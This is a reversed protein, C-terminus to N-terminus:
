KQEEVIEKVLNVYKIANVASSYYKEGCLKANGELLSLMEKNDALERIKEAAKEYDTRSVCIGFKESNVKRYFDSKKECMCLSTRGCAMLLTCKSPFSTYIVGKSLPVFEIDCASYVDNIISSDQWPFFRINTLKNDLAEKKFDDEFGGTGIIHIEINIDNKLLKAVEIVAHYNFTYGINGAYQIIFKSRDIEYKKIFQNEKEKVEKVASSDYWNPIIVLKEEEIHKRLFTQKMDESIVVIRSSTKYVYNQLVSLVFFVAKNNIAGFLHPGDPFVDFNNYVVPKKLYKHLLFSSFFATHTSQLIVADIEDIHKKWEKSANIQYLMGDKYRDFFKRKEVKGRPIISYTFGKRNKISDPIDPYLGKSHSTMLYVEIGNDLLTHMTTLALHNTGNPTDFGEFIFYLIKM